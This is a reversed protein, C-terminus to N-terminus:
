RAQHYVANKGAVAFEAAAPSLWLWQGADGTIAHPETTGMACTLRVLVAEPYPQPGPHPLGGQPPFASPYNPSVLVM